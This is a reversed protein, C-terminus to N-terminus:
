QWKDELKRQLGDLCVGLSEFAQHQTNLLGFLQQVVKRQTEVFETATAGLDVAHQRSVYVHKAEDKKILGCLVSFRHHSGLKSHEFAHMIQTVCTDLVAIQVFHESVDTVRGLSAYFRRAKRQAQAFQAQHIVEDAALQLAIDHRHEDAEVELLSSLLQQQGLGTLRSIEGNFVLQASQEGCLLLPLLSAMLEAQQNNFLPKHKDHDVIWQQIRNGNPSLMRSVLPQSPLAFCRQPKVSM